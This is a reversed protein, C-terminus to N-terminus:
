GGEKLASDIAELVEPDEEMTGNETNYTWVFERIAIADLGSVQSPLPPISCPILEVNGRANVARMDDYHNFPNLADVGFVQGSKGVLDSLAELIDPMEGHYLEAVKGGEKLFKGIAERM